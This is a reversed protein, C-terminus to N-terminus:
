ANHLFTKNRKKDRMASLAFRLSRLIATTLRGDMHGDTVNIYRPRIPQTLLVLNIVETILKPDENRPAGFRCDITWPACWVIRTSYPNPATEASFGAAINRFRPLVHGFNSNIVLLFDCVRKRNTDFDVVKSSRSRGNRV